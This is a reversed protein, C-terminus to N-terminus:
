KIKKEVFTSNNKNKIKLLLLEFDQVSNTIAISEKEKKLKNLRMQNLHMWSPKFFKTM